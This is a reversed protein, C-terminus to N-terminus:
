TKSRDRIASAIRKGHRYWEPGGSFVNLEPHVGEKEAIKACAEREDMIAAAIERKAAQRIEECREDAHDREVGVSQALEMWSLPKSM